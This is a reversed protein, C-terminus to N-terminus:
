NLEVASLMESSGPDNAQQKGIKVPCKGFAVIWQFRIGIVLSLRLPVLLEINVATAMIFVEVGLIRM